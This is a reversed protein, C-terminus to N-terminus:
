EKNQWDEQQFDQVDKESLDSKVMLAEGRQVYKRLKGLQNDVAEISEQIEPTNPEDIQQKHLAESKSEFVELVHHMNDLYQELSIRQPNNASIEQKAQETREVKQKKWSNMDVIKPDKPEGEAM